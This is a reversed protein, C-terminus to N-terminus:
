VVRRHPPEYPTATARLRTNVDTHISGHLQSTIAVAVEGDSIMRGRGGGRRSVMPADSMVRSPASVGQMTVDINSNSLVDTATRVSGVPEVSTIKGGKPHKNNRAIVSTVEKSVNNEVAPPLSVSMTDIAQPVVPHLSTGHRRSGKDPKNKHKSKTELEVPQPHRSNVIGFSADSGLVREEIIDKEGKSKSVKKGPNMKNRKTSNSHVSVDACTDKVTTVPDCPQVITLADEKLAPPQSQKMAHDKKSSRKGEVRHVRDKSDLHMDHKGKSHKITNAPISIPTGSIIDEKVTPISTHAKINGAGESRDEEIHKVKPNDKKTHKKDGYEETGEKVSGKGKNHKTNHTPIGKLQKAKSDTNVESSPKLLTTSPLEKISDNINLKSMRDVVDKDGSGIVGAKENDASKTGNNNRCMFEDFSEFRPPQTTISNNVPRLVLRAGKMERSVKWSQILNHVKGGLVTANSPMLLLVGNILEANHVKLKTGPPTDIALDDIAKYVLGHLKNHGDTVTVRLLTQNNGGGKRMKTDQRDSPLCTNTISSIQVVLPGEITPTATHRAISELLISDYLGKIDTDLFKKYIAEASIKANSQVLISAINQIGNRSLKVGMSHLSAYVEESVEVKASIIDANPKDDQVNGNDNM